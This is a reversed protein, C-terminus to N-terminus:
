SPAENFSVHGLVCASGACGHCFKLGSPTTRDPIRGHDPRFEALEATKLRSLDGGRRCLIPWESRKSLAHTVSM